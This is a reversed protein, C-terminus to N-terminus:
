RKDKKRRDVQGRREPNSEKEPEKPPRGRTKLVKEKPPRGRKKQVKEKTPRGRKKKQEAESRQKLFQSTKMPYLALSTAPNASNSNPISSARGIQRRSCLISEAMQSYEALIKRLMMLKHWLRGFHM